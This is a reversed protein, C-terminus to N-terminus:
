TRANVCVRWFRCCVRVAVGSIRLKRRRVKGRAYSSLLDEEPRGAFFDALGDGNFDFVDLCGAGSDGSTEWRLNLPATMDGDVQWIQLSAGAALLVDAAGDGDLDALALAAVAAVSGDAGSDTAVFGEATNYVVTFRDASATVVDLTGDGDMDAVGLVRGQVGAGLETDSFGARALAWTAAVRLALRGVGM